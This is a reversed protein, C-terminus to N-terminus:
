GRQAMNQFVNRLSDAVREVAKDIDSQNNIVVQGVLGALDFNINVTAGALAPAALGIGLRRGTEEWLGLARNRMRASLPIIAEPGSEAVLGLHPRTFIGGRAHRAQAQAARLRSMEAETAGGVLIGRLQAEIAEVRRQEANQSIGTFGPYQLIQSPIEGAAIRRLGVARIAFATAATAAIIPNKTTIWAVYGAVLAGVLPDENIAKWVGSVIGRGVALGLNVAIPVINPIAGELGAALLTGLVEGTKKITTGGPGELWATVVKLVKDLAISVKESWSMEDFGPTDSMDRLVQKVRQYMWEFKEGIRRGYEELRRRLRKYSESTYDAMDLMDALIRKVPEAMGAGFAAVTLRATDKLTSVLGLLSRSLREMGGAYRKELTRVIAEMAKAAPIGARGIDGMQEKAVGLEEAFATLPVRLNLAVQRLDQLNLTGAAAIQTFGLLANQLGQMGAGTMGAADGFARLARKAQEFTYGAGMLMITAEQLAPFEFPTTAAFALLEELAKKGKETSGMFYDMAIRAQEMEGAIKLPGYVAATAGVGVGLLALPSTLKSVITKITRTVKDKAQLTINWARATLGRLRSQINKIVPWAKDIAKISLKIERGFLRRLRDNTKRASQEFRNIKKEAQKLPADTNDEVIIPIEIRYVESEAM